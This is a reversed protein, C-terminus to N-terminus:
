MEQVFLDTVLVEMVTDPLAVDASQRLAQSLNSLADADTTSLDNENAFTVLSAFLHSRLRPEAALAAGGTGPMVVLTLEVAVMRRVKDEQWVPVTIQRPLRVYEGSTPETQRASAESKPLFTLAAYGGAGAGVVLLVLLLIIRIM